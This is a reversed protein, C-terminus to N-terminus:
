CFSSKNISQLHFFFVKWFEYVEDMTSLQSIVARFREYKLKEENNMQENAKSIDSRKLNWIVFSFESLNVAVSFVNQIILKMVFENRTTTAGTRSELEWEVEVQVVICIKTLEDTMIYRTESSCSEPRLSKRVSIEFMEREKFIMEAHCHCHSMFQVRSLDFQYDSKFMSPSNSNSQKDQLTLIAWMIWRWHDGLSLNLIRLFKVCFLHCNSEWDIREERLKRNKGRQSSM